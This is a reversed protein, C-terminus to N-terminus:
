LYLYKGFCGCCLICLLHFLRLWIFYDNRACVRIQIRAVVDSAVSRSVCGRTWHTHGTLFVHLKYHPTPRYFPLSIKL